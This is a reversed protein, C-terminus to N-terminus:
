QIGCNVVSCVINLPNPSVGAKIRAKTWSNLVKSIGLVVPSFLILFVVHRLSYWSIVCLKTWPQWQRLHGVSPRQRKTHKGDMDPQTRTVSPIFRLWKRVCQQLYNAGLANFLFLWLLRKFISLCAFLRVSQCISLGPRAQWLASLCVCSKNNDNISTPTTQCFFTYRDLSRVFLSYKCCYLNLYQPYM